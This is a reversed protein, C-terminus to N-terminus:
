AREERLVRERPTLGDPGRVVPAVVISGSVGTHKRPNNEDVRRWTQIALKWNAMRKGNKLRWGTAEYYQLFDRGLNPRHYGISAAYEDVQVVTPPAFAGEERRIHIGEETKTHSETHDETHREYSEPNQYREYNVVTIFFGRTAKRTTVRIGKRLDKM